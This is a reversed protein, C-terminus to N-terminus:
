KISRLEEKLVSARDELSAIMKKISGKRKRQFSNISELSANLVQISSAISDLRETVGALRQAQAAESQQIKQDRIVASERIKQDQAVAAEQLAERLAGKSVCGTALILCALVIFTKV